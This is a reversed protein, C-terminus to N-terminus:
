VNEKEDTLTVSTLVEWTGVSLICAVLERVQMWEAFDVIIFPTGDVVRQSYKLLVAALIWKIHTDVNPDINDIDLNIWRGSVLPWFAKWTQQNRVLSTVKGHHWTINIKLGNCWWVKCLFGPAMDALICRLQPQRSSCSSGIALVCSKALWKVNKYIFEWKLWNTM